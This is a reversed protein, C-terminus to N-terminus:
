NPNSVLLRIRSLAPNPTEATQTTGSPHNVGAQDMSAFHRESGFLLMIGLVATATAAVAIGFAIKKDIM